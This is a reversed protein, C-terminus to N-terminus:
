VNIHSPDMNFTLLMTTTMTMTMMLMTVIMMMATVATLYLIFMIICM